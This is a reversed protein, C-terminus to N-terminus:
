LEIPLRHGRASSIAAPDRPTAHDIVTDPDFLVLDAAAGPRIVGRDVFGMHQASLGTMKHVAEELSMLGRERVYRGLVRPFSGAGRPHLDGLSGDALVRRADVEGGQVPGEPGTVTGSVVYGPDLTVLASSSGGTLDAEGHWSGGNPHTVSLLYRGASM